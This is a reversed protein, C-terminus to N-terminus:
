AASLFSQEGAMLVRPEPSSPAGDAIPAARAPPQATENRDFRALAPHCRGLTAPAGCSRPPQRASLVVARRQGSGTKALVRGLAHWRLESIRDRLNAPTSVPRKARQVATTGRSAVFELSVVSTTPYSITDRFGRLHRGAHLPSAQLPSLSAFLRSTERRPRLRRPGSVTGFCAGAALPTPTMSMRCLFTPQTTAPRCGSKSAHM